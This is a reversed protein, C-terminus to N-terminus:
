RVDLTFSEGSSWSQEQGNRVVHVAGVGQVCWVVGDGVAVTAEDVALVPRDTQSEYTRRMWAFRESDWHSGIAISPFLGLGSCWDHETLDENFAPVIGGLAMIGGSTAALSAGADVAEVVAHWVKTDRLTETVWQPMGGHLFILSAGPLDEANSSVEANARSRVPVVKTRVNAQRYFPLDEAALGEDGFALPIIRVSGDGGGLQLLRTHVDALRDDFEGLGGFLAYLGM